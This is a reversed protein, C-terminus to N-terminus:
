TLGSATREVVTLVRAEREGQCMTLHVNENRTLCADMTEDRDDKYWARWKKETYGKVTVNHFPTLLM